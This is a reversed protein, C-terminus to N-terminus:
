QDDNIMMSRHDIASVIGQRDVHRAIPNDGIPLSPKPVGLPLALGCFAKPARPHNPNHHYTRGLKLIGILGPGLSECSSLPALKHGHETPFIM